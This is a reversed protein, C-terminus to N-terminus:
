LYFVGEQGWKLAARSREPVASPKPMKQDKGLCDQQTPWASPQTQVLVSDHTPNNSQRGEYKNGLPIRWVTYMYVCVCNALLLEEGM